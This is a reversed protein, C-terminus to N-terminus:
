PDAWQCGARVEAGNEWVGAELEQSRTWAETGTGLGIAEAETEWSGGVTGLKWSESGRLTQIQM